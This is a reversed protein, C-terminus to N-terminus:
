DFAQPTQVHRGGVIMVDYDKSAASLFGLDM